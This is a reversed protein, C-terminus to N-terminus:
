RGRRSGAGWNGGQPRGYPGDMPHSPRDNAGRSPGGRGNNGGYDNSYDPVIHAFRCSDGYRCRGQTFDYCREKGGLRANIGGRPRDNGRRDDRRGSQGPGFRGHVLVQQMADLARDRNRKDHSLILMLEGEENEPDPINMCVTGSMNEIDRLMNGDRGILRNVGGKGSKVPFVSVDQRDKYEVDAPTNGKASKMVWRIYDWCRAREDRDGAMVGLM